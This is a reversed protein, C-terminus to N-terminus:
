KGHGAKKLAELNSRAAALDPQLKLAIEYHTIADTPRGTLLHANALNNHAEAFNPQLRVAAAYHPVADAHRRLAFLLNGFNYRAEVSDPSARLTAEFHPVAEAGRGTQVLANALGYHAPVLGPSLRLAEEYRAIAEAFRAAAFLANGLACQAEPFKAHLILAQQQQAIAEATRGLSLLANGFNYHTSATGPALRLSAEFHAIADSTRNVDLLATALNNHVKASSPELQLARQFAAIAAVPDGKEVLAAGLAAHARSNLPRKAVTDTWLAIASGYDRNREITAYGLVASVVTAVALAVRPSWRHLAFVALAVVCALPLYMRHEAVPQGAVPVVSSTPALLIFVCALAFGVRPRRWLAWLTAAVLAVMALTHPWAGLPTRVFETGYDFVLPAPWFALRLYLLIARCETLAYQWWTVAEYGVGREHVDLLLVLLVLWTGALALHIKKRAAWADRFSGALFTRDYLFIVVPATVIVEKTLVGLLCAIVAVVFWGSSGAQAGRIFAYVTLLYFLAMLSETRQSVYTVAETQLPHVLWLLAVAFAPWIPDFARAATSRRALAFTRRVVGFLVLAAGIHIALNVVHYGRVSLGGAAYNLAFSLNSVPRGGVGVNAPPSLVPALPVLRRISDNEVISDIDDLVFPASFSNAYVLLGAAVLLAGLGLVLWRSSPAHM